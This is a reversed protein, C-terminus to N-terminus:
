FQGISTTNKGLVDYKFSFSLACFVVKSTKTIYVAFPSRHFTWFGRSPYNKVFWRRNLNNSENKSSNLTNTRPNLGDICGAIHDTKRDKTVCSEFTVSKVNQNLTLRPRAGDLPPAIGKSHEPDAWTLLHIVLSMLWQIKSALRTVHKLLSMMVLDKHQESLSM